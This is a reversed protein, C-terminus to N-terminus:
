ERQRSTARCSESDSGGEPPEKWTLTARHRAAEEGAAIEHEAAGSRRGDKAM